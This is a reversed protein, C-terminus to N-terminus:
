YQASTASNTSAGAQPAPSKPRPPELGGMRVVLNKNNMKFVSLHFQKLPKKIMFGDWKRGVVTGM